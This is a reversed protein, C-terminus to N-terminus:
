YQTSSLFRCQMNQYHTRGYYTSRRVVRGFEADCASKGVDCDGVRITNIATKKLLHRSAIVIFETKDDNLMLKDATM